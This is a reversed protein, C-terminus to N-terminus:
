LVADFTDRCDIRGSRFIRFAQDDFCVGWSNVYFHTHQKFM